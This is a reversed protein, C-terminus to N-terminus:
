CARKANYAHSMTPLSSRIMRRAVFGSPHQSEAIPPQWPLHALLLTGSLAEGLRPQTSCAFGKPLHSLTPVSATEIATPASRCKPASRWRSPDILSPIRARFLHSDATDSGTRLLIEHPSPRNQVTGPLQYLKRITHLPWSRTCALSKWTKTPHSSSM